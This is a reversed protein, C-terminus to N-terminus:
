PDVLVYFFNQVHEGIKLYEAGKVAEIRFVMTLSKIEQTDQDKAVAVLDKYLEKTCTLYDTVSDDFQCMGGGLALYKFLCFIFENSYKDQQLTEYHESEEFVLAQRLKDSLQMGEHWEDMCGQISGNHGSVIGIEEFVDFFAM